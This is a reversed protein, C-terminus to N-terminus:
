LEQDWGSTLPLDSLINTDMTTISKMFEEISPELVREPEMRGGHTQSTIPPLEYRREGLGHLPHNLTLEYPIDMVFESFNPQLVHTGESTMWYSWKRAMIDMGSGATTIFVGRRRLVIPSELELLALAYLSQRTVIVKDTEM